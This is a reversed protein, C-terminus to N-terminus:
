QCLNLALGTSITWTGNSAYTLTGCVDGAQDSSALPVASITYTNGDGAVASTVTYRAVAVSLANGQTYSYTQSRIKEMRQAMALIEAFAEQRHGKRVQSQYSPYAISALIAVIAVTVMLEILTFGAATTRIRM